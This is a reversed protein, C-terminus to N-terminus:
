AKWVLYRGNHSRLKLQGWGVYQAVTGPMLYAGALCQDHM